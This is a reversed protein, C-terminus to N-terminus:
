PPSGYLPDVSSIPCAPPSDYLHDVSSTPCSPLSDHLHDAFSIPWFCPLAILSFQVCSPMPPQATGQAKKGAEIISLPMPLKHEEPNEEKTGIWHAELFVVQLTSRRMYRRWGGLGVRKHRVGLRCLSTCVDHLVCEREIRITPAAKLHSCLLHLEFTM